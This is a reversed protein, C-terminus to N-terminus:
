PSAIWRSEKSKKGLSTEMASMLLLPDVKVGNLHAAWHLHPGSVRGTAGALGLLQGTKVVKGPKVLTKSLHGYITFVGFGHDVIITKGLYFTDRVLVVQGGTPAVIRTGTPARLDTGLHASTKKGNYVRSSGFVSTVQSNVPLVPSDSWFRKMTVTAYARRIAENDRQIRVRDKASPAITRPPVRLKESPFVSAVVSVEFNYKEFETEDQFRYKLELPVMGPDMGYEVGVFAGFQHNTLPIFEVKADRFIGSVEALPVNGDSQVNVFFVGGEVPAGSAIEVKIQAQAFIASFFSVAIFLLRTIDLLKPKPKEMRSVCGCKGAM